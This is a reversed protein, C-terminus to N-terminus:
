SLSYALQMKSFLDELTMRVDISDYVRIPKGDPNERYTMDEALVPAPRMHWNGRRRNQLLVAATTNDGLIWNEGTRLMFNPDFERECEEELQRLLYQGLEGCSAIKLAIEAFTVELTCYVNQPTQWVAATSELLARVAAPDQAANFEWRGAPYPGGGNWLVTIREGISPERNLAAAVNTMAGQVAIYLPRPDDRLAERILFDVGESNPADAQSALPGICGRFAPVDEIDALELLHRVEQYSKEMTDGTFGAKQEFHSAIIGVVDFSPSLLHQMIAFQDDAENKADTDVIVRVHSAEPVTFRLRKLIDARKM